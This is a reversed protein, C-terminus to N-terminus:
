PAECVDVLVLYRPHLSPYACRTRESRVRHPIISAHICKRKERLAADYLLFVDFRNLTFRALATGRYARYELLAADGWFVHELHFRLAVAQRVAQERVVL